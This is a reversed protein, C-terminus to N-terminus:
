VVNQAKFMDGFEHPQANQGWLPQQNGCTYYWELKQDECFIYAHNMCVCVVMSVERVCLQAPLSVSLVLTDFEYNGAKVAEAIQSCM